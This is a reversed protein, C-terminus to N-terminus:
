RLSQSLISRYFETLILWIVRSLMGSPPSRLRWVASLIRVRPAIGGVRYTRIVQHKILRKEDLYCGIYILFSCKFLRTRYSYIDDYM